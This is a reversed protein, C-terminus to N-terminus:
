GLKLLDRFLYEVAPHYDKYNINVILDAIRQSANSDKVAIKVFEAFKSELNFEELKIHQDTDDVVLEPNIVKTFYILLMVFLIVSSFAAIEVTETNIQNMKKLLLFPNQEKHASTNNRIEKLDKLFLDKIKKLTKKVTYLDDILRNSNSLTKLENKFRPGLFDSTDDIYEYLHLVLTRANINIEQTSNSSYYQEALRSIDRFSVFQFIIAKGIFSFTENNADSLEIEDEIKKVSDDFFSSLNQYAYKTEM